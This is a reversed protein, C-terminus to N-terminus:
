SSPTRIAGQDKGETVQEKTSHSKEEGGKSVLKPGFDVVSGFAV